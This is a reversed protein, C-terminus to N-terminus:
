ITKKVQEVYAKQLHETVNCVSSGKVKTKLAGFAKNAKVHYSGFLHCNKISVDFRAKVEPLNKIETYLNIITNDTININDTHFKANNKLRIQLSEPLIAIINKVKESYCKFFSIGWRAKQYDTNYAIIANYIDELFSIQYLSTPSELEAQEPIYYDITDVNRNILVQVLNYAEQMLKTSSQLEALVNSNSKELESKVQETVHLDYQTFWAKINDLINTFTEKATLNKDLQGFKELIENADTNLKTFITGDLTITLAAEKNESSPLSNSSKKPITNQTVKPHKYALKKLAAEKTALLETIFDERNQDLMKKLSANEEDLADNTLASINFNEIKILYKNTLRILKQIRLMRQRSLDITSALITKTYSGQINILENRAKSYQFRMEELASLQSNLKLAKTHVEEETDKNNHVPQLKKAEDKLKNYKSIFKNSLIQLADKVNDDDSIATLKNIKEQLKSFDQDHPVQKNAIITVQILNFLIFIESTAEELLKINSLLKDFADKQMRSNKNLSNKAYALKQIFENHACEDEQDISIVASINDQLWNLKKNFEISLNRTDKEDMCSADKRDASTDKIQVKVLTAFTLNNLGNTFEDITFLHSLITTKIVNDAILVLKLLENQKNALLHLINIKNTNFEEENKVLRLDTIANMVKAFDNQMNALVHANFEEYEKKLETLEKQTIKVTNYLKVNTPKVLRGLPLDDSSITDSMIAGIISIILTM